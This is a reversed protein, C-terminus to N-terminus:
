YKVKVSKGASTVIYIGRVTLRIRETAATAKGTHVLAGSINYVSWLNGPTLGEIHLLDNQIWAKLPASPPADNATTTLTYTIEISVPSMDNANLTLTVKYTGAPLNNVPILTIDTEGGVALGIATPSPLTFVNANAGSLTLTMHFPLLLPVGHLDTIITAVVAQQAM